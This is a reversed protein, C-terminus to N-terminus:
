VRGRGEREVIEALRIVALALRGSSPLLDSGGDKGAIAGWIIAEFKQERSLTPWNEDKLGDSKEIAQRHSEIAETLSSEISELSSVM